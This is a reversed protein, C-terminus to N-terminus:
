NFSREAPAVPQFLLNNQTRESQDGPITLWYNNQQFTLSWLTSVPNVLQKNLETLSAGKEGKSPEEDRSDGTQAKAPVGEAGAAFSRLNLRTEDFYANPEPDAPQALLAGPAAVCVGLALLAVLVITLM